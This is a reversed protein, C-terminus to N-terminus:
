PYGLRRLTTKAYGTLEMGKLEERSFWGFGQADSGAKIRGVVRGRFVHCRHRHPKPLRYDGPPVNHVFVFAPEREVEIGGAEEGAERQAAEWHSEGPEEHGGPPAWKGKEPEIKRKILLIRGDKEVVVDNTDHIEM